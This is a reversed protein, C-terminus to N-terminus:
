DRTHQLRLCYSWLTSTLSAKMLLGYKFLYFSFLYKMAKFFALLTICHQLLLVLLRVYRFYLAKWNALFWFLTLSVCFTFCGLLIVLYFDYRLRSKQKHGRLTSRMLFIKIPLHPSIIEIYEQGKKPPLTQKTVAKLIIWAPRLLLLLSGSLIGLSGM